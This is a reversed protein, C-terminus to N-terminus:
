WFAGYMMAGSAALHRALGEQYAATAQPVAAAFIVAGLAITAVASLVGFAAVRGPQTPSRHGRPAPRCGLLLGFLTTAVGASVVCYWCVAGIVFLELYTLYGSFAVAVVALLFAALWRWPALRAVALGGVAAYLGAGWAATPLGLFIAYRSAQVLECGGGATCFLPGAGHLRALTLYGAILVGLASVAVLPWNIAPPPESHGRYGRTM